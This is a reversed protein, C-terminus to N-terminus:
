SSLWAAELVFRRFIGAGYQEPGEVTFGALRLVRISSVYDFLVHNVLRPFIELMEEVEKKYTRVFFLPPAEELAKTTLFWPMGENKNTEKLGWMAAVKGNVLATKNILGGRYSELIGRLPTFGLCEIERRDDERLSNRLRLIHCFTTPVIEIM